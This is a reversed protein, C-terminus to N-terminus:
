CGYITSQSTEAMNTLTPSDQRSLMSINRNSQTDRSSVIDSLFILENFFNCTPLVKNGKSGVVVETLRKVDRRQVSGTIIDKMRKFEKEVYMGNVLNLPVALMRWLEKKKPTDKWDKCIPLGM